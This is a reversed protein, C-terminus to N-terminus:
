WSADSNRCKKMRQQSVFNLPFNIIRTDWDGLLKCISIKRMKDCARSAKKKRRVAVRVEVGVSSSNNNARQNDKEHAARNWSAECNLEHPWCHSLSTLNEPLFLRVLSLTLVNYFTDQHENQCNLCMFNINMCTKSFSFAPRPSPASCGLCVFAPHNDPQRRRLVKNDWEIQCRFRESWAVALWM